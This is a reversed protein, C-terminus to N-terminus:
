TNRQLDFHNLIDLIGNEDVSLNSIYGHNGRSLVHTKIEDTGNAVTAVYGCISMFSWDSTSDGVALCSDLSLGLPTVADIVSQKKSVGPATIIGFRHPNAIPHVTIALMIRSLYPACLEHINKEDTMDTAIPVVKIVDRSRSERELDEVIIPDTQLIHTHVPTLNERIQSKQVIYGEEAYLEVYMNNTVFQHVLKAVLEKEMVHKKVITNTIPDIIIAGGDTIHPNSLGCDHIIKTIAYQPKGTCLIVPIGSKKIHALRALVSPHPFPTNYGIRDGVMVGDIDLILGHIM